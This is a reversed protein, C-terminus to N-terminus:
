VSKRDSILTSFSFTFFDESQASMIELKSPDFLILADGNIAEVGETNIQVQVNFIDNLSITRGPNELELKFYQAYVANGFGASIFFFSASLLSIGLVKKM